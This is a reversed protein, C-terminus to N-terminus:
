VAVNKKPRGRGRALSKGSSQSSYRKKKTEEEPDFDTDSDNKPRGRSRATSKRATEKEEEEEEGSDFSLDSDSQEDESEEDISGTKKSKQAKSKGTKTNSRPGKKEGELVFDGEANRKPRGRPRGTSRKRSKRIDTREKRVEEETDQEEEVNNFESDTGKKNGDDEADGTASLREKIKKKKRGRASGSSHYRQVHSKLSVNHNFSRDCHQCKYPKEGTHLRMHSKLHNTQNFGRECVSCKYPKLGTHVVSHRRLHHVDKFEIGCVGCKFEKPTRHNSLHIRREKSTAFTELCDPCKYPDKNDKHTQEHKLKDLRTKFTVHCYKCPHEYTEDHIKSHTKLSIETVCRKGCINCSYPKVKHECTHPKLISFFRGCEICLENIKLGGPSDFDEEEEEEEDDDETEEDSEKTLEQALLIDETPNWEGDSSVGGEDGEEGDDSPDSEEDSFTVIESFVTRSLNDDTRMNKQTYPTGETAGTLHQDEATPVSANVQSKWQYRYECQLCQQNLIILVGYTVKEMQLKCDCSPCKRRFLQLLCSENVAFKGKMQLLAAKEQNLDNIVRQQIQDSGSAVANSVDPSVLVGSSEPSRKVDRVIHKSKESYSTPSNCANLNDCKFSVNTTEVPEVCQPSELPEEPESKICLSPVVGPKLRVSGTQQVFCDATFHECCITIDTWSSEKLRQGNVDFLFQVWELRREPDEPLKFRQASRRGSECGVVSCM